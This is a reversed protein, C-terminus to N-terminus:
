VTSEQVLQQSLHWPRQLLLDTNASMLKNAAAQPHIEALTVSDIQPTIVPKNINGDFIRDRWPQMLTFERELSAVLGSGAATARSSAVICVRNEAARSPLGFECEWTEQCDFPVLLCHVGKLALVKALEPYVSDDSTLMGVRGWPLDLTNIQDGPTFWSQRNTHHLQPQELLRGESSLLIGLHHFQQDVITTCISLGYQECLGQLFQEAHESFNRAQGPDVPESDEQWFLEPLVVLSVEEPLAAVKAAVSDLAQGGALGVDARLLAVNIKEAAERGAYGRPLGCDDHELQLEGPPEILKEYLAPRRNAFSDTGDPRSKDNALTVDIDAYIVAEVDRPARALISGDPAIIQSEGAGMLFPVPINTAASVAELQDQPILPGVKNAAVLFVKNEPARAPVHLSAEDLAFSNLSDCFIQAGRLALSRPTECTVGDRCPFLGLRAVGTDIVPSSATARSFFDNEHGMLTQKDAQAICQGLPDFLLSTITLLGSERRLSVNIVLYCSHEKARRAIEALFSGGEEVAVRNAHSQDDYWSLHNCFEPLVMLRPKKEAARDIM